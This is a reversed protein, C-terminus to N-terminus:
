NSSKIDITKSKNPNLFQKPHSSDNIRDKDNPKSSPTSLPSEISIRFKPVMKLANKKTLQREVEFERNMEIIFDILKSLRRKNKDLELVMNFKKMCLESHQLLKDKYIKVLCIRCPILNEQRNEM